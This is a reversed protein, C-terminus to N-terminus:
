RHTHTVRLLPQHALHRQHFPPLPPMSGGQCVKPNDRGAHEVLHVALEESLVLAPQVEEEEEKEEQEEEEQM